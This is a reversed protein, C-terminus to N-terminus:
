KPPNGNRHLELLGNSVRKKNSENQSRIELSANKMFYLKASPKIFIKRLEPDNFINYISQNIQLECIKKCFYTSMLTTSIHKELLVQNKFITETFIQEITSNKPFTIDDFLNVCNQKIEGLLSDRFDFIKQTTNIRTLIADVVDLEYNKNSSDIEVGYQHKYEDLLKTERPSFLQVYVQTM